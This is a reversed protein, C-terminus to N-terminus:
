GRATVMLVMDADGGDGFRSSEAHGLWIQEGRERGARRNSDRTWSRVAKRTSGAAPGTKLTGADVAAEAAADAADAADAAGAMVIMGKVVERPLVILTFEVQSLAGPVKWMMRVRRYVVMRDHPILTDVAQCGARTRRETQCRRLKGHVFDVM